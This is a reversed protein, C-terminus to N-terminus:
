RAAGGNGAPATSGRPRTPSTPAPARPPPRELAAATRLHRERHLHPQPSPCGRHVARRRRHLEPSSQLTVEEVGDILRLASSCKPSWADPQRRLRHPHVTPVSGPPTASAVRPARRQLQDRAPARRSGTEAARRDGVRAPRALLDLRASPCCAASNTSRTPGTSARTWSDKSPRRALKARRRDPRQLPALAGADSRAQEAEARSRRRRPTTARSRTAPKATCSCSCRSRAGALAIVAYAGGQSRGLVSAGRRGAARRPDPQRGEGRSRRSPSGPPSLWGTRPSRAQSRRGRGPARAHKVEIGLAAQLADAFGPIDQAAGSLVVHSVDGGGEQSRHFDLSNRVEGYIDRIGSELM